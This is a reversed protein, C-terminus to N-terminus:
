GSAQEHKFKACLNNQLAHLKYWAQKQEKGTKGLIFGSYMDAAIASLFHVIQLFLITTGDTATVTFCLKCWMKSSNFLIWQM